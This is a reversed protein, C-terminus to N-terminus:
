SCPGWGAMLALLDAVDTDGDDDLDSACAVPNNTVNEIYFYEVGNTTTTGRVLMDRQGDGNMDILGWSYIQYSASGHPFGGEYTVVMPDLTIVIETYLEPPNSGPLLRSVRGPYDQVTGRLPKGGTMFSCGVVHENGDGYLDISSSLGRPECTQDFVVSHAFTDFQLNYNPCNGGGQVIEATQPAKVQQSMANSVPINQNSSLTVGGTVLATSSVVMLVINM